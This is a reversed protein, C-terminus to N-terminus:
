KKSDHRPVNKWGKKKREAKEMRDRMKYARQRDAESDSKALKTATDLKKKRKGKAKYQSPYKTSKKKPKRKKKKKRKKKRAEDILAEKIFEELLFLNNM